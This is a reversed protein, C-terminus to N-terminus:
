ENILTVIGSDVSFLRYDKNINHLISLLRTKNSDNIFIQGYKESYVLSLLAEVRSMDLKDFIDDLLLIPKIGSRAYIMDFESLKLAILMSKQQGWSGFRKIPHDGIKIVMDDRHIGSSTHGLIRDKEFNKILLSAYDTESLESRYSIQIDERGLSIKEYAKSVAPSLMSIFESRKSHIQTACECLQFDIVDLLEIISTEDDTSKLLKNRDTLLSNYRILSQLYNRDVQAILVNLFKRREEAADNILASDYPSVLITPVVGIHDSLRECRKDGRKIVKEGG